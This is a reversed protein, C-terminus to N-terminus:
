KTGAIPKPSPLGNCTHGQAGFFSSRIFDKSEELAKPTYWCSDRIDCGLKVNPLLSSDNNIQEIVM